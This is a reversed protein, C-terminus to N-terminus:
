PTIHLAIRAFRLQETAEVFFSFPAKNTAIISAGVLVGDNNNATAPARLLVRNAFLAM